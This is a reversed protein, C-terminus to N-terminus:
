PLTFMSMLVSILASRSASILVCMLPRPVPCAAPAACWAGRALAEEGCRVRLASSTGPVWLRRCRGHGGPTEASPAPSCPRGTPQM